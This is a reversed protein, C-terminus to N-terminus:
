EVSEATELMNEIFIGYGKTPNNVFVHTVAGILKGNQIIPSGSMGQIIGNTSDLVSEDVLTFTIGKIGTSSDSDIETIEILCEQITDDELVTLFYAEGLEIEEKSACEILDNTNYEITNTIGYIGLDSHYLVEGLVDDGITAFKQGAVSFTAKQIETVYSNYITGNQLLGLSSLDDFAMAHGLAGFMNEEVDIYTLTGIGLVRDKVYLGTQLLDDQNSVKLQHSLLDGDRLISLVIGQSDVYLMQLQENFDSIQWIAVSNVSLIIDGENLGNELPNYSNDDIIINYGGTIVVGPCELEIAISAGSPIVTKAYLAFVSNFLLILVIFISLFSKKLLM